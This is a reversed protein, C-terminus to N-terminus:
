LTMDCFDKLFQLRFHQMHQNYLPARLFLKRWIQTLLMPFINLCGCESFGSKAQKSQVTAATYYHKNRYTVCRSVAPWLACWRLSSSLTCAAAGGLCCCGPSADPGRPCSAVAVLLFVAPSQSCTPVLVSCSISLLYSCSCHLLNLAPLLLFVAPSQSCTPVM